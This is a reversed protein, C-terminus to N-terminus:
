QHHRTSDLRTPMPYGPGPTNTLEKARVLADREDGSLMVDNGSMAKTFAQEYLSSSLLEHVAPDETPM